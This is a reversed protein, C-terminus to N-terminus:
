WIIHQHMYHAFNNKLLHDLYAAKDEPLSKLQSEIYPTKDFNLQEDNVSINTLLENITKQNYLLRYPAMNYRPNEPLLTNNKWIYNMMLNDYKTINNPTYYRFSIITFHRHVNSILVSKITVFRDYDLIYQQTLLQRSANAHNDEPFDIYSLRLIVYRQYDYKDHPLVNNNVIIKHNELLTIIKQNAEQIIHRPTDYSEKIMNKQQKLITMIPASKHDIEKQSIKLPM